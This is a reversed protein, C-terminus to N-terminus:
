VSKKDHWDPFQASFDVNIFRAFPIIISGNDLGTMNQLAARSLGCECLKVIHRSLTRRNMTDLLNAWGETRLARFTRYVSDAQACSIKGTKTTTFFKARLDAHIKNDDIIKIEKGEIAAFLDKCGLLWLAQIKDPTLDKNKILSILNCDIGRRELFRHFLTLEWRILGTAYEIIPPMYIENLLHGDIARANRKINEKVEPAKAYVKIKKLRSNKKGFYATGDYGTRCKTQGFSVNQLANIFQKAELDSAARSSYTIDINSLFWTSQDLRSFLEPYTDCLLEIMFFACSKFDDSGFINHGQMLKAPSAKIEIYFRDIADYRHDFIKFAMAEYSSPIKEWHHRTNWVQGDRDISQETPVCLDGLRFDPWKYCTPSDDNNKIPEKSFSCRLELKDIM